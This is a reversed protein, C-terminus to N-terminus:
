DWTGAGKSVSNKGSGLFLLALSGFLFFAELEITWGGGSPKVTFIRDRFELWLSMFMEYAIVLASLRTRWGAIILVPAIVEAIFVGYAIFGPLGHMQLMPPMWSIGHLLKSIGHFLLLGGVTLRLLLKGLDDSHFAMMSNM